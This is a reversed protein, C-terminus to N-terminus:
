AKEEKLFCMHSLVTLLFNALVQSGKWDERKHSTIDGAVLPPESGLHRAQLATQVRHGQLVSGTGETRLKGTQVYPYNAVSLVKLHRSQKTFLPM